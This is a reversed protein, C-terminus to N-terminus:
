PDMRNEFWGEPFQDPRKAGKRRNCQRHTPLINSQTHPGGQILPIVHDWEIRGELPLKCLYCAETVALIAALEVPGIAVGRRRAKDLLSSQVAALPDSWYRVRQRECIREQNEAYRVMSLTVQRARYDPDSAFREANRATTRKSVCSKCDHRFGDRYSRDAYFESLLKDEGCKRCCKRVATDESM